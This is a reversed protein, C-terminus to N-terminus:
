STASYAFVIAFARDGASGPSAPIKVDIQVHAEGGVPIQGDVSPVSGVVISDKDLPIQSDVDGLGNKFYSWGAAFKNGTTWPSDPTMSMEVGASGTDGWGMITTYDNDEDVGPYSSGVYRTLYVTCSTIPNVEADHSIFIDQHGVYNSPTVDGLDTTDSLSYGGSTGSLTLNITM